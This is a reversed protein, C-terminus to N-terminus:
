CKTIWLLQIEVYYFSFIISSRKHLFHFSCCFDLIHTSKPLPMMAEGVEMEREDCFLQISSSLSNSTHEWHQLYKRPGDRRHLKGLRHRWKLRFHRHWRRGRWYEQSHEVCLMTIKTHFYNYLLIYCTKLKIQHIYPMAEGTKLAISALNFLCPWLLVRDIRIRPTGGSATRTKMRNRYEDHYIVRFKLTSHRRNISITSM